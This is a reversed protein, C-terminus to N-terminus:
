HQMCIDKLQFTSYVFCTLVCVCICCVYVCMCIFLIWKKLDSLLLYIWKSSHQKNSTETIFNDPLWHATLTMTYKYRTSANLIILIVPNQQIAGDKVNKNIPIYTKTLILMQVQHFNLSDMHVKHGFLSMFVHAAWSQWLRTWFIEKRVADIPCLIEISPKQGMVNM